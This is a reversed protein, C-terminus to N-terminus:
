LVPEVRSASLWDYLSSRGGTAVASAVYSGLLAYIALYAGMVEREGLGDGSNIRWLVLHGLEWPLVKWMSRELARAVPLRGGTSGVVRIGFLAKGVTAGPALSEAVGFYGMAPATLLFLQVTEGSAPVSLFRRLLGEVPTFSVAAVGGALLATYAGVLATDVLLAAMRRIVLNDRGHM